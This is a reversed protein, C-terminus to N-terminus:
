IFSIRMFIVSVNHICWCSGASCASPLIKCTYVTIVLFYKFVDSAKGGSKQIDLILLVFFWIPIHLVIGVLMVIIEDTIYDAFTLNTCALNVRCMLHVRDVFYVVAYPVYMTNLLSFVVHLALAARGGSILLSVVYM